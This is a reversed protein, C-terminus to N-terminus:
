KPTIHTFQGSLSLQGQSILVWSKFAVTQTTREDESGLKELPRAFSALMTQGADTNPPQDSKNALKAMLWIQVAFSTLLCLVLLM